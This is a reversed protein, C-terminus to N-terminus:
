INLLFNVLNVEQNTIGLKKRLRYRATELSNISQGTLASIEKSTMNLRLFAALKIESPSLDPFNKKLNQYFEEHVNQFRIEFEDWVEKETLSQLDIIIKQLPELNDEKLKDKLKLLRATISDILENKKLLYIVNTTLEKNKMIMDKELREKELQIRKNRSRSLFFLLGLIIMGLLLSSSIIIYTLKVIKQQAEKEKEQKEYDFQLQLKTIEQIKNDNILSDSVQKFQEHYKLAIDYKQLQKNIQYLFMSAIQRTLPEKLKTGLELAKEAYVKAEDLKKVEFYYSSIYYYSKAIGSKDNIKIRAELSKNLYEFAKPYNKRQTEVKGLNNSIIGINVYDKRQEAISLGKLYYNEATNQENKSLYINGINNYLGHINKIGQLPKGEEISKNYINLAEFYYKLADDFKGVRDNVVGISSYSILEESIFKNEQSIKLGILFNNLAEDYKGIFILCNGIKLHSRTQFIKNGINNSVELADKAHKLAKLFDTTIFTNSLELLIKVKTTDESSSNLKMQLSDIKIPDQAFISQMLTIFSLLLILSGLRM